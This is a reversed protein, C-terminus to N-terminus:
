QCAFWNDADELLEAGPVIVRGDLQNNFRGVSEIRIRVHDGEAALVVGSVVDVRAIGVPVNRCVKAGPRSFAVMREAHARATRQMAPSLAMLPRDDQWPGTLQRGDPWEYIGAGHRRDKVFDGAYRQGAWASSKGWVYIGYGHKLDNVFEGDYRDGNPWEKQGAGQKRGAVFGGTYRATGAAVGQGHALGNVCPGTYVSQLEPDIVRCGGAAAGPGAIAMGIILVYTPTVFANWCQVWQLTRLNPHRLFGLPMGCVFIRLNPHRLFGLLMGCVRRHRM